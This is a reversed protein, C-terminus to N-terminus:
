PKSLPVSQDNIQTFKYFWVSTGMIFPFILVFLVKPLDIQGKDFNSIILGLITSNFATLIVLVSGLLLKNYRALSYKKRIISVVILIFVLLPSFALSGGLIAWFYDEVQCYFCDSKYTYPNIAFLFLPSLIITTIWIKFSYLFAQKM